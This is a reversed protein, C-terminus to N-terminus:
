QYGQEKLFRESPAVIQLGCWRCFRNADSNESSCEPCKVTGAKFSQTLTPNCDNCFSARDLKDVGCNACEM